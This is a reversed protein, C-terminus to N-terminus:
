RKEKDAGRLKQKPHTRGIRKARLLSSLATM